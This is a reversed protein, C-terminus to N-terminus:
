IESRCELDLLNPIKEEKSGPGVRDMVPVSTVIKSIMEAM